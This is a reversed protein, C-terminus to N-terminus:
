LPLTPQQTSPSSPPPTLAHQIAALWSQPPDALNLPQAAGSRILQRNAPPMARPAAFCFLPRGHHLAWQVAYASGGRLDSAVLVLAWGLAAIVHNRRIALSAQFPAAPRDLTLATMRRPPLLCPTWDGHLLGRAPIALTGGVQCPDPGRLVGAHAASDAGPAMGSVVCIGAAALTAALRSAVTLWRPPTERSGVIAVAPRALRGEPGILWLWEPAQHGLSSELLPPYGPRGRWLLRPQLPALRDALHQIAADDPWAVRPRAPRLFGTARLDRELARRGAPTAFADALEPATRHTALFHIAAAPLGRAEILTLYPALSIKM